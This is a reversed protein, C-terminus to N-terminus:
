LRVGERRGLGQRMLARRFFGVRSALQLGLGRVIHVPLFDTM